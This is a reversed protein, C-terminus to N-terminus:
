RRMAYLYGYGDITTILQLSETEMVSRSYIYGVNLKELEASVDPSINCEVYIKQYLWGYRDSVSMGRACLVAIRSTYQRIKPSLDEPFICTANDDQELIQEAVYICEDPLKYPNKYYNWFINEQYIYEGSLCIIVFAAVMGVYRKLNGLGGLVDSFVYAITFYIPFIWYLRWYVDVGTIKQSVFQCFLPNLFLLMNCLSTGCFLLMSTNWIKKYILLYLVSLLFLIFYSGKGMTMDFVTKWDPAAASMYEEGSASNVVMFFVYLIYLIVPLMSAVANFILKWFRKWHKKVCCCILHPIGIILYYIPMLFVGVVSFGLGCVVIILNIVWTGTKETKKYIDICSSMLMPFAFNVLMAKGQWIRLLLFCASSYVTYGGFLNLISYIMLFLYLTKQSKILKRGLDYVAMYCLLILLPPIVTHALISPHIKFIKAFFALFLEWSASQPRFSDSVAAGNYVIDGDLCILDQELAINSITIFYGDDDDMHELYGSLFMQMGILIVLIGFYLYKYREIKVRINQRSININKLFIYTGICLIALVCFAFIIVLVSFHLGLCIAFLSLLEFVAIFSAFGTIISRIMNTKIKLYRTLLYGFVFSGYLILIIMAVGSLIIAM